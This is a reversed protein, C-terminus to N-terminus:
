ERLPPRGPANDHMRKRKQARWRDLNTRRKLRATGGIYRRWRPAVPRHVGGDRRRRWWSM